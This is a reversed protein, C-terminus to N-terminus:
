HNTLRYFNISPKNFLRYTFEDTGIGTSIYLDTNNIKYYEGSYKLAGEELFFNRIIPINIKGGLSHGALILDTNELSIDDIYDPEHMILISYLDNQNQTEYKVIEDQSTQIKSNINKKNGLNSSIGSIFIPTQDLNYIYDFTDNLNIFNSNTLVTEYEKNNYEENGSIAYKGITAKMNSFANTIDNLDKENLKINKDFLDGTFIILDPKLENIKNTINKLDKSSVKYGYHLDSLHIIKLGHFNDPLKSNTIKYEKVKLGRTGIYNAYLIIAIILIFITLIFLFIKKIINKM